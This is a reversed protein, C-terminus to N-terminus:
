CSLVIINNFKTVIDSWRHCSRQHQTPALFGMLNISVSGIFRVCSIHLLKNESLGPALFVFRFVSPTYEKRRIRHSTHFNSRTLITKGNVHTVNGSTDLFTSNIKARVFSLYLKKKNACASLGHVRVVLASNNFHRSAIQSDFNLYASSYHYSDFEISM